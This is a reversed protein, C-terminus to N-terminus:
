ARGDQRKGEHELRKGEHEQRTNCDAQLPSSQEFSLLIVTRGSERAQAQTQLHGCHHM